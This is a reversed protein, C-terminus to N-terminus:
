RQIPRERVTVVAAIRAEDVVEVGLRLLARLQVRVGCLVSAVGANLTHPIRDLANEADGQLIIDQYIHLPERVEDVREATDGKLHWLACGKGRRDGTRFREGPNLRASLM